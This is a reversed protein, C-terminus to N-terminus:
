NAVYFLYASWRKQYCIYPQHHTAESNGKWFRMFNTHFFIAKNTRGRIIGLSM